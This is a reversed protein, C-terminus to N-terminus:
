SPIKIPSSAKKAAMDEQSKAFAPDLYGKKLIFAFTTGKGVKSTVLVKSHHAEVIEQVISLGLGTGGKEKSRSKEVRYFREFIRKLHEPAIGKGDDKVSIIVNEKDTDLGVSVKGHEQGYYIGNEILNKMVQKIQYSDGRVMVKKYNDAFRLEIERKKAIGELMDFIDEILPKIDFDAIIMKLEGMELQSLTLLEAVMENLGDLSKAAKRLFKERIDKENMAGDLLTYIYGQAAFIPTKLEHSIDALFERRFTELKKLERIEAQKRTVYTYVEEYIKKRRIPLNKTKRFSKVNLEGEKLRIKDLITYIKNVERFILYELTAYVIIFTSSFLTFFLVIEKDKYDIGLVLHLLFILLTVLTAVVISILGPNFVM